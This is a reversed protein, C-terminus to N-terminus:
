TSRSGEKNWATNTPGASTSSTVPVRSSGVRPDEPDVEGYRMEDADGCRFVLCILSDNGGGGMVYCLARNGSVMTLYM